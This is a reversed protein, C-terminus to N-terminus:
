EDSDEKTPGLPRVDPAHLGPDYVYYRGTPHQKKLRVVLDLAAAALAHRAQRESQALRDSPALGTDPRSMLRHWEVAERLRETPTESLLDRNTM